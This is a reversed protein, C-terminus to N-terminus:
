EGVDSATMAINKRKARLWSDMGPRGRGCRSGANSRLRLRLMGQDLRRVKDGRFERWATTRTILHSGPRQLKAGDPRPISLTGIRTFIM